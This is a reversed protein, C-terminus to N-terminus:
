IDRSVRRVPCGVCDNLVVLQGERRSMTSACRADIEVCGCQLKRAHLERDACPAWLPIMTWADDASREFGKPVRPPEWGTKPYTISGDANLKPEAFDKEGDFVPALHTRNSAVRMVCGACASEDVTQTFRECDVHACRFVTAEAGDRSVVTIENRRACPLM